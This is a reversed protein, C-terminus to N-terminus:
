SRLINGHDNKVLNQDGPLAIAPSFPDELDAAIERAVECAFDRVLRNMSFEPKSGGRRGRAM